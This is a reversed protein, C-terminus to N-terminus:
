SGVCSQAAFCAEDLCRRRLACHRYLRSALPTITDVPLYAPLSARGRGCGTPERPPPVCGSEIESIFPLNAIHCDYTNEKAAVGAVRFVNSLHDLLM